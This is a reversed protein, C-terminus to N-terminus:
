NRSMLVNSIKREAPYDPREAVTYFLKYVFNFVSNSIASFEPGKGCNTLIVVGFKKDPLFTFDSAYGDIDGGHYIIRTNKSQSFGTFCGLGYGLGTSMNFFSHHQLKLPENKENMQFILFKLLDNINSFANGAGALSGMDWPKTALGSNDDRYATAMEKQITDNLYLATSYMGLPKFIYSTMLSDLSIGTLNELGAGLLGYGFNSYQWKKGIDGLLKLRDIGEYLQEKSFGSIPEGDKRNLNGPYPPIAATHTAVDIILPARSNADLPFPHYSPYLLQISSFSNIKNEIIMQSLLYGTFMKTLSGLQFCTSTSVTSKREKDAYGYGKQYIVEGNVVIGLAVGPLMHQQMGSLIISDIKSFASIASTSQPLAPGSLICFLMLFISRSKM